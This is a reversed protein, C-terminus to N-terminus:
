IKRQKCNWKLIVLPRSCLDLFPGVLFFVLGLCCCSRGNRLGAKYGVSLQSFSWLAGRVTYFTTFPQKFFSGTWRAVYSYLLNPILIYFPSGKKFHNKYGYSSSFWAGWAKCPRTWKSIFNALILVCFQM